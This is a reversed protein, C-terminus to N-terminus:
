VLIHKLGESFFDRKGVVAKKPVQMLGFEKTHCGHTTLNSMGLIGFLRCLLGDM